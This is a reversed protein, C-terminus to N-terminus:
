FKGVESPDGVWLGGVWLGVEVRLGVGVVRIRAYEM